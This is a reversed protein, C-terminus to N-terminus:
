SRCPFATVFASWVIQAGPETRDEPHQELERRVIDVIQQGTQGNPRCVHKMPSAPAGKAVLFKEAEGSFHDQDLVGQVYGLARMQTMPDASTLWGYLENGDAALAQACVTATMASVLLRKM